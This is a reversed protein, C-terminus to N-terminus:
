GIQHKTKPRFRYQGSKFGEFAIEDSQYYVFKIMDFNYRGRNVMLDRGWYNPDRIYSVSRGADVRGLKYPGSGM